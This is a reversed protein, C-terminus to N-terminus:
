NTRGASVRILPASSITRVGLGEVVVVMNSNKFPDTIMKKQEIQEAIVTTLQKLRKARMAARSSDTM